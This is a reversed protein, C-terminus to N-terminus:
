ERGAARWMRAAVIEADDKEKLYCGLSRAPTATALRVEVDYFPKSSSGIPKTVISEIENAPVTRTTARGMWSRRITLTHNEAVVTSRGIFADIMGAIILLAFLAFFVPFLIPAGLSLMAYIAGCWIILFFMSSA